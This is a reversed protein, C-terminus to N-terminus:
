GGASARALRWAGRERGRSKLGTERRWEVVARAKGRWAVVARIRERRAVEPLTRERESSKLDVQLRV